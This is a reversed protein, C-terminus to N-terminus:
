NYRIICEVSLPCFGKFIAVADQRGKSKANNKQLSGVIPGNLPQAHGGALILGIQLQLRWSSSFVALM